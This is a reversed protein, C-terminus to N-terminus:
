AGGVRYALDIRGTTLVGGVPVAFPLERHVVDATAAAAIEPLAVARTVLAAAAAAETNGLGFQPALTRAAVTVDPVSPLALLAHVLRGFSESREDFAPAPPPVDDALETDADETPAATGLPLPLSRAVATAAEVPRAVQRALARRDRRATEWAHEAALGFREDGEDGDIALTASAPRQPELPAAISRLRVLDRVGPRARRLGSRPRGRAM